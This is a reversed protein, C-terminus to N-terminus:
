STAGTKDHCWRYCPRPPGIARMVPLHNDTGPIFAVATIHPEAKLASLVETAAQADEFTLAATSNGALVDALTALKRPEARRMTVLDYGALALCALLLVVSTIAMIILTLKRRISMAQIVRM